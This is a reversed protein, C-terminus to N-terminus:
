AEETCICGERALANSVPLSLCIEALQLLNPALHQMTARMSILKELLWETPTQSTLNHKASPHKVESPIHEKMELLNYKFKRWECLLEEKKEEGRLGEYLHDALIKVDSLAYGGPSSRSPLALPDFIKFTTLVPLSDGFRNSINEKLAYIYKYTLRELQAEDSQTFPPLGCQSLRGGEALDEKLRKCPTQQKEIEELEDTTFKIAPAIAAFSVAGEQFAKSLHSLIPLAEHLLYVAGIFKIIQTLLGIAASDGECKLNALTQTLAEYDDYVGEIARETSLWRTRCAKRFRKKLKKRGPKSLKVQNASVVAKAYKATKPASNKFLSWLQILIKEITKIYTVNDNADGCALALRHCICHVNILRKNEAKLRTAVGTNKGTMVSAGDSAFGSLKQIELDSDEVQSVIANKITEANPAHSKELLDNVALFDTSAKGIDVNLYKVFTVLQEKNSIDCVEDSLLGFCNAKKIVDIMQTKVVDGLLLLM